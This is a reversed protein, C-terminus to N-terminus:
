YDPIGSLTWTLTAQYQGIMVESVDVIELSIEGSNGSYFSSQGKAKPAASMITVASNNTPLFVDSSFSLSSRGALSDNNETSFSHFGIRAGTLTKSPEDVHTFASSSVSLVWDDNTMRGDWVSVVKIDSALEPVRLSGTSLGSVKTQEFSLRDFVRTLGLTSVQIPAQIGPTNPPLPTATEPQTVPALADDLIFEVSAQSKIEQAVVPKAVFVGLMVIVLSVLLKRKDM